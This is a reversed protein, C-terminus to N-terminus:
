LQSCDVQSIYDFEEESMMAIVTSPRVHPEEALLTTMIIPPPVPPDSQLKLHAQYAEKFETFCIECITWQSPLSGKTHNCCYCSAKVPLGGSVTPPPVHVENAM